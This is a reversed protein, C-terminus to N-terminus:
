RVVGKQRENLPFLSPAATLLVSQEQLPGASLEQCGCPLQCSDTVATGPYDVGECLCIHLYFVMCM